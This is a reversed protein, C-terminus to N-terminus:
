VAPLLEGTTLKLPRNASSGSPRLAGRRHGGRPAWPEESGGVAPKSKSFLEHNFSVRWVGRPPFFFVGGWPKLLCHSVQLQFILHSILLDDSISM